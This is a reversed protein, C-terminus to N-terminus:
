NVADLASGEPMPRGIAFQFAWSDNTVYGLSLLLPGVPTRAGLSGSVGYITGDQILDRREGVRGAQLRIGAYLSQDLLTVLDTLKFRYGGGAVWYSTGRLENLRLGPFSRIGGILFDRTPPLAGSLRKGGAAVLTLSDDRWPFTRTVVGEALGYEQNGGLWDDSKVIRAKAFTGNTTLGIDDRTDYTGDLLVNSERERDLNPLLDDGTDRRTDIWGLAGGGRLQLRNAFNIGLDVRGELTQLFYRAERRGDVYIDQLNSEFKAIPQVFFRQRLDFPQYFDTQLITQRGIQVTNHWRGGLSNMWTRDHDARLLASIEGTGEAALGADIRLFDPGLAKEVPRITLIRADRPGAFEYEVKDFHGLAFVRDTDANIQETDVIAGPALYRFQKKVYEPNVRDLGVIRVEALRSIDSGINTVSERWALYESDPLSYRRLEDAAAEAADRGLVIADAARQFDTSGIDGMPVAIGIDRSTLTAIQANENANIMVDMSRGVLKVASNLEAADPTPSKLWVAIVIDACLDRAVDVPLNRMMGGDSLVRDGIVVPSFAGPVAMSARMAVSIDGSDLVVMEGAVMDTAIARFPIPLSDFKRHFRADTTLSRIVDEIKQTEILGPPGMLSGGRIGLEVQNTYTPSALKRDIPMNDRTAGGIATTWDIALAERKLVDPPMGSAFIGGVLAGMSTGAVCDIPIRLEDLVQIVGIHATGKAGGGGLVLGIRPRTKTPSVAEAMAPEAIAASQNLFLLLSVSLLTACLRRWRHARQKM